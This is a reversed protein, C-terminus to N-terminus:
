ACRRATSDAPPQRDPQRPRQDACRGRRHRCQGIRRWPRRPRDHCRHRHPRNWGSGGRLARHGAPRRPRHHPRSRSRHVHVQRRGPRTPRRPGGSGTHGPRHPRTRRRQPDRAHRIKRRGPPRRVQDPGARGPYPHRDGVPRHHLAAAHRAHHEGHVADVPDAPGTLDRHIQVIAREPLRVATVEAGPQPQHRQRRAHQGRRLLRLAPHLRRHGRRVVVRGGHVQRRCDHGARTRDIRRGSARRRRLTRPRRGLQRRSTRPRSPRLTPVEGIRDRQPHRRHRTIQRGAQRQRIRRLRRIRPRQRGRRLGRPNTFAPIQRLPEDLPLELRAPVQALRVGAVQAVGGIVHDHVQLAAARLHDHIVRRM